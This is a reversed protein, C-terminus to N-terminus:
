AEERRPCGKAMHQNNNDRSVCNVHVKGSESHCVSNKIHSTYVCPRSTGVIKNHFHRWSCVIAPAYTAM